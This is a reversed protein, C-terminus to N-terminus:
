YKITVIGQIPDSNEADNLTIIFVYSSIPLVNGKYTGDWAENYGKSEFIIDGWRNYIEIVSEPYLEIGKIEWYDNKGDNNPTFLTPIELCSIQAENVVFTESFECNNNDTVTITYDGANLETITPYTSQNSWLYTYPKVGGLVTISISGDFNGICSADTIEESYVIEVGDYIIAQSTVTCNNADTITLDYSGSSLGMNISSTESNSWEFTLPPIGGMSASADAYGDSGGYCFVNQTLISDIIESPETIVINSITLSCGNFDTITVSYSGAVLNNISATSDGTDWFYSYTPTGGTVILNISGNSLGHCTIHTIMDTNDIYDLTGPESIAITDYASCGIGDTIIISYEGADLDSITDTSTGISWTYTVPPVGSLIVVSASGDGSNNCTLNTGYLSDQPAPNITITVSAMDTCSNNDTVTVTYTTSTDPTAVPNNTFPDDLGASPSWEYSTGGTANLPAQVGQCTTDTGTAIAIPLSHVYVSITDVDSCLTISNTVTVYYDTDVVPSITINDITDSINWLYQDGGSATILTSDGICLSTDGIFSINPLLNVTV